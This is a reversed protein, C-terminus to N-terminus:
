GNVYSRQSSPLLTSGAGVAISAANGLGDATISAWATAFLRAVGSVNDRKAMPKKDADFITSAAACASSDAM